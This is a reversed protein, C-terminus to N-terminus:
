WFLNKRKLKKIQLFLIKLKLILIKNDKKSNFFFILKNLFFM